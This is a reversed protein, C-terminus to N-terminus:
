HGVVHGVLVLVLRYTSKRLDQFISTPVFYPPITPWAKPLSPRSPLMLPTAVWPSGYVSPLFPFHPVDRHSYSRTNHLGDKFGVRHFHGGLLFTVLVAAPCSSLLYSRPVGPHNVMYIAQCLRPTSTDFPASSPKLSRARTPPM